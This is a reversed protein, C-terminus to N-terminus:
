GISFGLWRGILGGVIMLVMGALSGAVIYAFINIVEISFPLMWLGSGLGLGLCCFMLGGFLGYIGAFYDKYRLSEVSTHFIVLSMAVLGVSLVGITPHGFVGEETRIFDPNLVDMAMLILTALALGAGELVLWAVGAPLSEVKVGWWAAGLVAATCLSMSSVWAMPTLWASPIWTAPFWNGVIFIIASIAAVVETSVRLTKELKEM